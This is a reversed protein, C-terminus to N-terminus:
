MVGLEKALLAAYHLNEANGSTSISIMVDGPKANAYLEQAVALNPHQFDNEIASRLVPNMGLVMVRQAEELNEVLISGEESKKLRAALAAPMHRKVVFSKALEGSIHLADAM